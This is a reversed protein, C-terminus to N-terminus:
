TAVAIKYGYPVGLLRVTNAPLYQTTASATPDEGIAFHCAGDAVIAIMKTQDNFATSQASAGITIKQVALPPAPPVAGAFYSGGGSGVNAYEEIYCDAM